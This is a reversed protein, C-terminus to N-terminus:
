NVVALHLATGRKTVQNIDLKKQQLLLKMISISHHQVALQLPTYEDITLVTPNAGKIILFSVIQPNNTHIAWHIANRGCDGVENLLYNLKKGMIRNLEQQDDIM